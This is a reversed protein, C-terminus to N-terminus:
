RKWIKGTIIMILGVALLLLAMKAEEAM